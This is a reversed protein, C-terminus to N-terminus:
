KMLSKLNSFSQGSGDSWVKMWNKVTVSQGNPLTGSVLGESAGPRQLPTIGQSRSTLPKGEKVIELGSKQRASLSTTESLKTELVIANEFDLVHGGFAEIKKALVFDAIFYEDKVTIGNPIAEGNKYVNGAEDIKNGTKFQVQEFIEYDKPNIDDGLEESLRKWFASNDDVVTRAMTGEFDNGKKFYPLVEQIFKEHKFLPELIKREDDALDSLEEAAAKVDKRAVDWLGLAKKNNKILNGFAVDYRALDKALDTVDSASTSYHPLNNKFITYADISKPYKTFVAAFDASGANFDTVFRSMEMESLGAIREILASREATKTSAARIQNKFANRQAQDTIRNYITKLACSNHVLLGAKGVFYNHHREVELNYVTATTDVLQISQVPEKGGSLTQVSDGAQLESAPVYYGNAYFPHDPTAFVLAGGIAIKALKNVTKRFIKAVKSLVPKGAAHDFAQITNNERVTEIPATKGGVYVPTGAVFCYSGEAECIWKGEKSTIKASKVEYEIGDEVVKTVGALELVDDATAGVANIGENFTLAGGKVVGLETTNFLVKGTAAEHSLLTWPTLYATKTVPSYRVKAKQTKISSSAEDIYKLEAFEGIVEDAVDRVPQFRFSVFSETASGGLEFLTHKTGAIEASCEVWNDSVLKVDPKIPRFKTELVAFDLQKLLKTNLLSAQVGEKMLILKFTTTRIASLLKDNLQGKRAAELLDPVKLTIKVFKKTGVEVLKYAGKGLQALGSGLDVWQVADWVFVIDRGFESKKLEDEAFTMVIDTGALGITVMSMVTMSQGGSPLALVIAITNGLVRICKFQADRIENQILYGLYFAPLILKDDNNDKDEYLDLFSAEKPFEVELSDSLKYTKSFLPIEITSRDVAERYYKTFTIEGKAQNINYKYKCDSHYNGNTYDLTTLSFKERYTNNENDLRQIETIKNIFTHFDSGDLRDYLQFYLQANNKFIRSVLQKAQANYTTTKVLKVIMEEAGEGSLPELINIAKIRNAITINELDCPTLKGLIELAQKGAGTGLAAISANADAVQKRDFNMGNITGRFSYYLGVARVNKIKEDDIHMPAEDIMRFYEELEQIGNPQSALECITSLESGKMLSIWYANSIIIPALPSGKATYKSNSQLYTQGLTSFGTHDKFKISKRESPNNLANFLRLYGISGDQITAVANASGGYIVDVITFMDKVLPGFFKTPTAGAKMADTVPIKYVDFGLDDEYFPLGILVKEIKLASSLGDEYYQQKEECWYGIGEGGNRMTYTDKGVRFWLLSGVPGINESLQGTSVYYLPDGTSIAVYDTNSPLTVIKGSPALFTYAKENKYEDTLEALQFGISESDEDGEFLAVVRQPDHVQDWQYKYLAKGSGNTHDMLNDTSGKSLGPFESFPHRLNFAGHGLEHAITAPVSVGKRLHNDLFIFGAQKSRPMYGLADEGSKPKNVLFLYYTKDRLSGYANIVKKMDGTYNSLMGSEGDDFHQDLAVALKPDLTVNWQAVAQGYIANLEQQIAPATFGVPLDKHEINVPVIIVDRRIEDYSVLNLKGLVNNQDQAPSYMAMLEEVTGEAKGTVSLTYSGNDSATPAVATGNIEFRVKKPDIDTGELVANVVDPRSSVAKWAIYEGSELQQYYSALADYKKEDFGLVGRGKEFRLVINYNRDGRAAAARAEDATTKTVNGEKDVVYGNGAEDVVSYSKGKELKQTQGDSTHVEIEGDENPSVEVIATGRIEILTETAVVTVPLEGTKPANSPDTKKQTDLLFKSNANWVSKIEGSTLWHQENVNIDKFTVKVKASNFWPVIAMGGGSYKGNNASTIERVLV